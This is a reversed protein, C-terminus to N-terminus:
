ANYHVFRTTRKPRAGKHGPMQIGGRAAVSNGIIISAMEREVGRKKISICNSLTPRFDGPCYHPRIWILLVSLFTPAGMKFARAPDCPSAKSRGQLCEPLGLYLGSGSGYDSQYFHICHSAGRAGPRVVASQQALSVKNALSRRAAPVVDRGNPSSRSAYARDM